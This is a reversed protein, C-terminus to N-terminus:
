SECVGKLSFHIIYGCLFDYINSCSLGCMSLGGCLDSKRQTWFILFAAKRSLMEPVDLDLLKVEQRRLQSVKLRNRFAAYIYGESAKIDWLGRSEM